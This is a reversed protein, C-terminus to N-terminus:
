EGAIVVSHSDPFAVGVAAARAEPLPALDAWLNVTPDFSQVSDLPTISKSLGGLAYLVNDLAVVVHASREVPM